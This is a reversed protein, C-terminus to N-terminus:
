KVNRTPVQDVSQILTELFHIDERGMSVDGYLRVPHKLDRLFDIARLADERISQQTVGGAIVTAVGEPSFDFADWGCCGFVCTIEFSKIFNGLREETTPRIGGHACCLDVIDQYNRKDAYQVASLGSRELIANPDAGAGLLRRAVELYGRQCAQMLASGKAKDLYAPSAGLALRQEVKKLDGEMAASLLRQNLTPDAM